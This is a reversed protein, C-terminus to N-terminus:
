GGATESYRISGCRVIIIEGPAKGLHKRYQRAFRKIIDMVNARTIVEKSQM